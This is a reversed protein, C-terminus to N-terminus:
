RVFRDFRERIWDPNRGQDASFFSRLNESLFGRSVVFDLAAEEGSENAVKVAGKYIPANFIARVNRLITSNSATLTTM